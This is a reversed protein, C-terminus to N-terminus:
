RSKSTCTSNTIQLMKKPTLIKVHKSESAKAVSDLGSPFCIKLLIPWKKQIKMKRFKKETLISDQTFQDM